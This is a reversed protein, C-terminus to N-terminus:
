RHGVCGRGENRRVPCCISGLNEYMHSLCESFYTGLGTIQKTNWVLGLYYLKLQIFGTLKVLYHAENNKWTVILRGFLVNKVDWHFISFVM